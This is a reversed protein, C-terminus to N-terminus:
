ASYREHLEMLRARTMASPSQKSGGSATKGASLFILLEPLTAGYIQPPTWGLMAGAAM